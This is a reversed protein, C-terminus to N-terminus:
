PAPALDKKLNKVREEFTPHTSLMVNWIKWFKRAKKQKWQYEMTKKLASVVVRSSRIKRKAYSDAQLETWQTRKFGFRLGWLVILIIFLVGGIDSLLSPMTLGLNRAISGIALLIVFFPLISYLGSFVKKGSHGYKVHAIEHLGIAKSENETLEKLLGRSFMIHSSFPGESMFAALRLGREDYFRVDAKIGEEKIVNALFRLVRKEKASAKM